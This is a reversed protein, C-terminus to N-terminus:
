QSSQWAVHAVHRQYLRHPQTMKRCAAATAQANNAAAAPLKHVVADWMDQRRQRKQQHYPLVCGKDLGVANAPIHAASNATDLLKQIEKPRVRPQSLKGYVTELAATWSTRPPRMSQMMKTAEIARYHERRFDSIDQRSWWANDNVQHDDHNNNEYYINRSQDFHVVARHHHHERTPQEATDVSGDSRTSLTSCSTQSHLTPPSLYPNRRLFKM